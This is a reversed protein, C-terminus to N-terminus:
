NAAGNHGGEKRVEIIEEVSVAVRILFVLVQIIQGPRGVGIVLNYLESSLNVIILQQFRYRYFPHTTHRGRQREIPFTVAKDILYM